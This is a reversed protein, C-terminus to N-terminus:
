TRPSRPSTASMSLRMGSRGNCSLACSAPTHSTTHLLPSQLCTPPHTHPSSLLTNARDLVTRTTTTYLSFSRVLEAALALHEGIHTRSVSCVIAFTLTTPLLFLHVPGRSNSAFPFLSSALHSFEDPSSVERKRPASASFPDVLREVEVSLPIWSLMPVCPLPLRDLLCQRRKHLSRHSEHSAYHLNGLYLQRLM